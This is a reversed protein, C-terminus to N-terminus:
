VSMGSIWIPASRYKLFSEM